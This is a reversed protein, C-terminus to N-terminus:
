LLFDEPKLGFTALEKRFAEPNKAFKKKNYSIKEYSKICKDIYTSNGNALEVSLRYYKIYGGVEHNWLGNLIAELKNM